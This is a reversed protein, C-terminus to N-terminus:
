KVHTCIGARDPAAKGQKMRRGRVPWEQRQRQEATQTRHPETIYCICSVLVQERHAHLYGSIHIHIHEGRVLNTNTNTKSNTSNSNTSNSNKSECGCEGCSGPVGGDVVGQYMPASYHSCSAGVCYIRGRVRAVSLVTPEYNPNPFELRQITGDAFDTVKGAFKLECRAPIM